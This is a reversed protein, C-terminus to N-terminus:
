ERGHVWGASTLAKEVKFVARNRTRLHSKNIRIVRWGEAMIADLRDVDWHYQEEDTRHQGGDYEVLVKYRRYVIDGTAIKVGLRNRIIGNIEPEPLGARVLLLRLETERPSDVGARVWILAERLKKAGRHGAFDAVAARLEPLTAPPSQRRVLADGVVILEDLSLVSALQCWTDVPAAVRFGRVLVTRVSGATVRHGRVGVVRPCQGPLEVSVEIVGAAQVRRPLPLGHLRAATAHSFSQSPPMREGYSACATDISPTPTRVERVAPFPKLLDASRLRGLSVGRARAERTSFPRSRFDDPLPVLRPM